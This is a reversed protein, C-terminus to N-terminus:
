YPPRMGMMYMRRMDHRAELQRSKIEGNISEVLNMGAKQALESLLSMRELDETSLSLITRRCLESMANQHDQGLRTRTRAETEALIKEKEQAFEKKAAELDELDKKHGDLMEQLSEADLRKKFTEKTAM